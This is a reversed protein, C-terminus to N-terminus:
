VCDPQWAIMELTPPEHPFHDVSNVVVAFNEPTGRFFEV